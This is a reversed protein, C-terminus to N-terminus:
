RLRGQPMLAIISMQRGYDPEAAHTTRRYSFWRTPDAFTDEGTTIITRLGAAALQRTILGPLDFHAHGPRGPTFFASTEPDLTEFRAQFALDVEYSRRQITPGIAATIHAPRAGLAVMAEITAAAINAHAGKWGSHAAGIVGAERDALLLPACDATLIGLALGPQRTVMADAQPRASEPWPATVTIVTASHIQHLTLLQAAPATAALARARNTQVHEPRDSSGPGCNLSAYLGTSVGGQRGLFAHPVGLAAVTVRNM